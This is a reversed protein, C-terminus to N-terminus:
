GRRTVINMMITERQPPEFTYDGFVGMVELGSQAAITAVEEATYIRQLHEETVTGGQRRHYRLISRVLRSGTDYENSWEIWGDRLQHRTTKGAFNAYINYETTIDFLFVGREHMAERCCVFVRAMDDPELLYNMTDHVSFIFDVPRALSFRTIDACFIRFNLFARAKAVALMSLSRDIGYITYGDNSFKAGFRGTGCGLELVTDAAPAYRAMVARIYEYWEQYDVHRLITDYAPAISTYPQM